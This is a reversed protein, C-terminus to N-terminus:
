DLSCFLANSTKDRGLKCGHESLKIVEQSLWDYREQLDAPALSSEPPLSIWSPWHTERGEREGLLDDHMLRNRLILVKLGVDRLNKDIELRKAAEADPSNPARAPQLDLGETSRDILVSLRSADIALTDLDAEPKDKECGAIPLLVLACCVARVFSGM